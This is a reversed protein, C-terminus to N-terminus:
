KIEKVYESLVESLADITNMVEEMTNEKAGLEILISYKSLDQNYAEPWDKTYRKFIGRSLRPYKSNIKESIINSVEENDKYTKNSTGIVFLIRAYNKNNISVTSINKDISDRHLDIFFKLSKYKSMANKMFIRSSGYFQNTKVGSNKIFEAMNTEEVLTPVGKSNLKDKLLYASMMVNPNITTNEIGANSYTELQHTNYIYIVPNEKNISTNNIYSTIKEYDEVKYEDEEKFVEKVEEVKVKKNLKPDLLSEPKKFDINGLLKLSENFIFKYNNKKNYSKDLLYNVYKKDKIKANYILFKSSLVFTLILFVLFLIISKYNRKKKSKLKMKNMIDGNITYYM